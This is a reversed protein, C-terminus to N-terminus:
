IDAANKTDGKMFNRIIRKAFRHLMDFILVVFLLMVSGNIMDLRDLIELQNQISATQNEIGQTLFASMSDDPTVIVANGSVTGIFFTQVAENHMHLTDNIETLIEASVGESESTGDGESETGNGDTETDETGSETGAGSSNEMGTISSDGTGIGDADAAGSNEGDTEMGTLDDSGSGNEDTGTETEAGDAPSDVDSAGDPVGADSNETDGSGAGNDSVPTDSDAESSVSDGANDAGVPSDDYLDFSEDM